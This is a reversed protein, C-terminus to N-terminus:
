LNEGTELSNSFHFGPSRSSPTFIPATLLSSLSRNALLIIIMFPLTQCPLNKGGFSIGLVVYCWTNPDQDM